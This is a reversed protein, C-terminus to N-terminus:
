STGLNTVRYHGYLVSTIKGAEPFNKKKLLPTTLSPLQNNSEPSGTIIVPDPASTVIPGDRYVAQYPSLLKLIQSDATLNLM